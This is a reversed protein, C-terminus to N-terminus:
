SKQPNCLQIVKGHAPLAISSFFGQNQHTFVTLKDRGSCLAVAKAEETTQDSLTKFNNGRTFWCVVSSSWAETASVQLADSNWHQYLLSCRGVSQIVVTIWFYRVRLSSNQVYWGMLLHLMELAKTKGFHQVLCLHSISLLSYYMHNFMIIPATIPILKSKKQKRSWFSSLSM